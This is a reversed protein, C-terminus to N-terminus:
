EMVWPYSILFYKKECNYFDERSHITDALTTGLKNTPQDTPKDILRSLKKAQGLCKERLEISFNYRLM